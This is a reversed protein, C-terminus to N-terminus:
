RSPAGERLAVHRAIGGLRTEPWGPIIAPDAYRRVIGITTWLLYDPAEGKPNQDLMRAYERVLRTRCSARNPWAAVPKTYDIAKLEDATLPILGLIREISDRWQCKPDSVDMRVRLHELVVEALEELGPLKGLSIGAGLWVAYRDEAVGEAFERFSGDLLALTELISIDLATPMM